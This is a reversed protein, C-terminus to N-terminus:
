KRDQIEWKLTATDYNRYICFSATNAKLHVMQLSVILM